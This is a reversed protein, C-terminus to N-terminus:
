ASINPQTYLYGVLYNIVNVALLNM